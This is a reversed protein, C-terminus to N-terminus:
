EVLVFKEYLSLFNETLGEEKDLEELQRRVISVVSPSLKIDKNYTTGENNWTLRTQDQKIEYKEVEEDTFILKM